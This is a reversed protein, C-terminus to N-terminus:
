GGAGPATLTMSESSVIDRDFFDINGDPTGLPGSVDESAELDSRIQLNITFTWTSIRVVQFQNVNRAIRNDWIKMKDPDSSDIKRQLVNNSLLGIKLAETVNQLKYGIGNTVTVTSSAAPDSVFTARLLDQKIMEFAMRSYNKAAVKAHGKQWVMSGYQIYSIVSVMMMTMVITATLVEVLTFARKILAKDKM